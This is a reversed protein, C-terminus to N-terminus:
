CTRAAVSPDTKASEFESRFSKRESKPVKVLFRSQALAAVRDRKASYSTLAVCELSHLDGPQNALVAQWANTANAWQSLDGYAHAALTAPTLAPKPILGAYRTYAQTLLALQKDGAATYTGTSSNYGVTNADSLRANMLSAWASANLPHLKAQRLAARTQIAIASSQSNSSNSGTLGGILGGGEGSGVGFLILGSAILVALGIYTVQVTRRRGRSRLDFLM